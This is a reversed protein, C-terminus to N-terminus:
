PNNRTNRVERRESIICTDTDIMDYACSEKKTHKKETQRDQM